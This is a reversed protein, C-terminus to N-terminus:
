DECTVSVVRATWRPFPLGDIRDVPHEAEILRTDSGGAQRVVASLSVTRGTEDTAALGLRLASCDPGSSVSGRFLLAEGRQFAVLDIEYDGGGPETKLDAAGPWEGAGGAEFGLAPRATVDAAGEPPKRNSFRRMGSSDTWSYIMEGAPAKSRNDPNLAAAGAGSSPMRGAGAPTLRVPERGPKLWGNLEVLRGKQNLYVLGTVVLPVMALLAILVSKKSLYRRSPITGPRM